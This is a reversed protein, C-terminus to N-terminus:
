TCRTENALKTSQLFSFSLFFSKKMVDLAPYKQPVEASVQLCVSWTFIIALASKNGCWFATFECACNKKMEMMM